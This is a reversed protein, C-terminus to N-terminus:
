ELLYPTSTNGITTLRSHVHVTVTTERWSKEKGGNDQLGLLDWDKDRGMQEFAKVEKEFKRNFANEIQLLNQETTQSKQQNNLLRLDAHIDISLQAGSPGWKRKVEINQAEVDVSNGNVQVTETHKKYNKNLIFFLFMADEDLRGVMRADTFVAGAGFSMGDNSADINELRDTSSSPKEGSYHLIPVVIPTHLHMDNAIDKFRVPYISKSFNPKFQNTLSRIFRGPIKDMPTLSNMVTYLPSDTVFLVLNSRREPNLEVFNILDLIGQRAYRETILYSQMHATFFKRPMVKGTKETFRGISYEKFNYTYVTTKASAGGPALGMPNIVQYYATYAETEPDKDVGCLSVIALTNIEKMDWCGTCCVLVILVILFARM